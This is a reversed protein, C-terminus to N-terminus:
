YMQDAYVPQGKHRYRIHRHCNGLLKTKKNCYPCAFKCAKGCEYELHRKLNRVYSYPRSCRPCFHVEKTNKKGAVNLREVEVPREKPTSDSTTSNKCRTRTTDSNDNHKHMNRTIIQRRFTSPNLATHDQWNSGTMDFRNGGDVITHSFDLEPEYRWSQYIDAFLLNSRILLLLYQCFIM